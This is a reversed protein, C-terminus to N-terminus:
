AQGTPVSVPIINQEYLRTCAARKRIKLWFYRVADSRKKHELPGNICLSTTKNSSFRESIDNEEKENSM